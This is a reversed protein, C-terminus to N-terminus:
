ASATRETWDASVMIKTARNCHPHIATSGVVSFFVASRFNECQRFGRAVTKIQESRANSPKFVLTHLM